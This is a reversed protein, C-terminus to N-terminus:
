DLFVDVNQRMCTIIIIVLIKKHIINNQVQFPVLTRAAFFIFIFIKLELYNFDSRNFNIVVPLIHTLEM